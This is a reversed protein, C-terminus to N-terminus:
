DEEYKPPRIVKISEEIADWEAVVRRKLEKRLKNEPIYKLLEERTMPEMGEDWVVKIVNKKSEKLEGTPTRFDFLFDLEDAMSDIGYTFHITVNCKRFPYPHRTKEATVEIVASIVRDKLEDKQKLRSRLRVTEYFTVARGGGVTYKKEFTKAGIKDREQSIIYLLCNKEGLKATLGRFFEQSLFKAQGGGYTGDDYDKDKEYAARREEKRGEMELSSLSDLSDLVYIGVEGEETNITDLWKNLDFDWDEATVVPRDGKKAPPFMNFGYLATSDITNGNEPDCYRWKFKDKYKHYNAAVCETAKFSKSSGTDGHDRVITGAPYGMGYGATEGGGVVLDMLTHGTSFYVTEKKEEKEKKALTVKRIQKLMTDTM